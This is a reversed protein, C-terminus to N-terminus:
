WIEFGDSAALFDRFDKVTQEDVAYRTDVPRRRGKGDCGNCWRRKDMGHQVGVDDSRIGTGACWRCEEDAMADLRAREDAILKAVVGSDLAETLTTALAHADPADLGDGDNSQAYTVKAALEPAIAACLKWLPRWTWVTAPFYNGSNGIVDMGM